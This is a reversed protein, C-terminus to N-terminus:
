ATAPAPEAAEEHKAAAPGDGNAGAKNGAPAVPTYFVSGQKRTREALGKAVLAELTNRVVQTKAARDPHQETLINVVESVMRPEHSTSLIEELLSVLTPGSEPKRARVASKRRERTPTQVPAKKRGGRPRPVAPETVTEAATATTATAKATTKPTTKKAKPAVADVPATPATPTIPAEPTAEAAGTVEHRRTAAASEAPETSQLQTLWEHERGLKALHDQLESIQARVGEQERANSDLDAAIRAARAAARDQITTIGPENSEKSM